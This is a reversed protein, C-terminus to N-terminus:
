REGQQNVPQWFIKFAPYITLYLTTKITLFVNQKEKAQIMRINSCIHACMFHRERFYKTMLRYHNINRYKSLAITAGAM